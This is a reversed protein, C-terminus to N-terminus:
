IGSSPKALPLFKVVGVIYAVHSNLQQLQIFGSFLDKPYFFIWFHEFVMGLPFVISLHSMRLFISRFFDIHLEVNTNLQFDLMCDLCPFILNSLHLTQLTSIMKSSALTLNLLTFARAVGVFKKVCGLTLNQKLQHPFPVNSCFRYFTLISLFGSKFIFNDYACV